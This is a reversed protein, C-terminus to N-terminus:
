LTGIPVSKKHKTDVPIYNGKIILGGAGVVPSVLSAAFNCIFIIFELAIRYKKQINKLFIYSLPIKDYSMSAQLQM